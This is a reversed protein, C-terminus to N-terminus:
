RDLVANASCSPFRYADVYYIRKLAIVRRSWHDIKEQNELEWYWRVIITVAIYEIYLGSLLRKVTMQFMNQRVLFRYIPIKSEKPTQKTFPLHIISCTIADNTARHRYMQKLPIVHTLKALLFLYKGYTILRRMLIWRNIIRTTTRSKQGTIIDRGTVDRTYMYKCIRRTQVISKPYDM